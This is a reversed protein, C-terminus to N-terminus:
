YIWPDIALTIANCIPTEALDSIRVRSLPACASVSCLSPAFFCFAACFACARADKYIEEENAETEEATPRLVSELASGGAGAGAGGGARPSIPDEHKENQLAAMVGLLASSNTRKITREKGGIVLAGKAASKPEPESEPEPPKTEKSSADDYQDLYDDDDYMPLVAVMKHVKKLWWPFFESFAVM